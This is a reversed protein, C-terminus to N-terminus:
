KLEENRQGNQETVAYHLHFIPRQFSLAIKQEKFVFYSILSIINQCCAWQNIFLHGLMVQSVRQAAETHTFFTDMIFQLWLFLYLHYM